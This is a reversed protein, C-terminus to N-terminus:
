ANCGTIGCHWTTKLASSWCNRASNSSGSCRTNHRGRIREEAVSSISGTTMIFLSSIRQEPKGASRIRVQFANKVQDLLDGIAKKGQGINGIKAQVAHFKLNEFKDFEAFIFDKGHENTGHTHTVMIYGLRVLFPAIWKERFEAENKFDPLPM